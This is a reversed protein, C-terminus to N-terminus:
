RSVVVLAMGSRCLTFSSPRADTSVNGLSSALATAAARQSSTYFVTNETISPSSFNGVSSVQYGLGTVKERYDTALGSITGANYICVDPADAPAVSASTTGSADAADSSPASKETSPAASTTVASESAAAVPKDSSSTSALSHWGLGVFVIAVALLVMAAARLPLKNSDRDSNM